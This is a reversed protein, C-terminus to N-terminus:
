DKCEESGVSYAGSKRRLIDWTRQWARGVSGSHETQGPRPYELHDATGETVGEGFPVQSKIFASQVSESVKDYNVRREVQFERHETHKRWFVNELTGRPDWGVLLFIQICVLTKVTFATSQAHAKM